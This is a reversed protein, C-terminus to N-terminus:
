PCCACWKVSSGRGDVIAFQKANRDIVVYERKIHLSAFFEPILFKGFRRLAVIGRACGNDSIANHYGTHGTAFRRRSPKKITPGRLSSFM